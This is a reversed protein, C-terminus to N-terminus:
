MMAMQKQLKEANVTGQIEKFGPNFVSYASMRNRPDTQSTGKCYILYLCVVLCFPLLLHASYFLGALGIWILINSVKFWKTPQSLNGENSTGTSVSTLNLTDEQYKLNNERHEQLKHRINQM